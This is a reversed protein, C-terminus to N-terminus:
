HRNQTMVSSRVLFRLLFSMTWAGVGVGQATILVLSSCTALTSCCEQFVLHFSLDVEMPIPTDLHSPLHAKLGSFHPSPCLKGIFTHPPRSSCKSLPKGETTAATYHTPLPLSRHCISLCSFTSNPYIAM